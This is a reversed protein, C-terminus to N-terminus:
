QAVPILVTVATGGGEDDRCVIGRADFM